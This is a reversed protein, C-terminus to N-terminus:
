VTLDNIQFLIQVNMMKTFLRSPDTHLTILWDAFCVLNLEPDLIGLWPNLEQFM